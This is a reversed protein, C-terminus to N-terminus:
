TDVANSVARQVHGDPRQNVQPAEPRFPPRVLHRAGGCQLLAACPSADVLQRYLAVRQDFANRLQIDIKGRDGLAVPHIHNGLVQLRLLHFVVHDINATLHASAAVVTLIFRPTDGNLPRGGAHLLFRLQHDLGTLHRYSGRPIVTVIEFLIAHPIRMSYIRDGAPRDM